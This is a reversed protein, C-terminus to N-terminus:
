QTNCIGALAQKLSKELTGDPKFSELLSGTVPDQIPLPSLRVELGNLYLIVGLLGRTRPKPPKVGGGAAVGSGIGADRNSVQQPKSYVGVMVALLVVAILFKM